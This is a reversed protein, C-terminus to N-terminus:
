FIVSLTLNRKLHGFTECQGGGRAGGNVLFGSEFLGAKNLNLHNGPFHGRSNSLRRPISNNKYVSQSSHLSVSKHIKYVVMSGFWPWVVSLPIRVPFGGM